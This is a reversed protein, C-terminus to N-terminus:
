SSVIAVERVQRVIELMGTLELKLQNWNTWSHGVM